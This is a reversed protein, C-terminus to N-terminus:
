NDNSELENPSDEKFQEIILNECFKELDEFTYILNQNLTKNDKKKTMNNAQAAKVLQDKIEQFKMNELNEKM